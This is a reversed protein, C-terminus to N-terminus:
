SIDTNKKDELYYSKKKIWGKPICLVADFMDSYQCYDRALYLFDETEKILVGASLHLEGAPLELIGIPENVSCADIWEVAILKM